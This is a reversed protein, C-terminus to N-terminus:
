DPIFKAIPDDLLLSGEEYLMMIATSTIPKTMSFIRFITNNELPKQNELDAFGFDKRNVMEGNKIIMTSIGAFKGEDVYEQMKRNALELTDSSLGVDEPTVIKTSQTCSNQSVFFVFLLISTFLYKNM